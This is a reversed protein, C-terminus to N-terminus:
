KGKQSVSRWQSATHQKKKENKSLVKMESFNQFYIHNNHLNSKGTPTSSSVHTETMLYM